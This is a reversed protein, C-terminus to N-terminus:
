KLRLIKNGLTKIPHMNYELLIPRGFCLKQLYSIVSYAVICRHSGIFLIPNVLVGMMYLRIIHCSILLSVLCRRKSFCTEHRM